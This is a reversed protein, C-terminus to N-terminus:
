RAGWTSRIGQAVLAAAQAMKHLGQVFDRSAQHFARVKQVFDRSAQHFARVKQLQLEIRECTVKVAVRGYIAGIKRLLIQNGTRANKARRIRHSTKARSM